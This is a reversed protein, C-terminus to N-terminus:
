QNAISQFHERGKHTPERGELRSWRTEIAGDSMFSMPRVKSLLIRDSHWANSPLKKVPRFTGCRFHENSFTQRRDSDPRIGILLNIVDWYIESLQDTLNEIIHATEIEVDYPGWVIRELYDIKSFRVLEIAKSDALNQLPRDIHGRREWNKWKKVAKCVYLLRTPGRIWSGAFRDRILFEVTGSFFLEACNILFVPFTSENSHGNTNSVIELMDGPRHVVASWLRDAEHDFTKKTYFPGPIRIEFSGGGVWWRRRPWISREACTILAFSAAIYRSSWGGLTELRRVPDLTASFINGIVAWETIEKTITETHLSV